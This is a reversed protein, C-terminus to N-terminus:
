GGQIQDVPVQQQHHCFERLHVPLSQQPGLRKEGCLNLSTKPPSRWKEALASLQFGFMGQASADTIVEFRTEVLSMESTFPDDLHVFIKNAAPCYKWSMM